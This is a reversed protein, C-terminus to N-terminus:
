QHITKNGHERKLQDSAESFRRLKEICDNVDKLKNKLDEGEVLNEISIVEL